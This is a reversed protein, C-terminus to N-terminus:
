HHIYGDGGFTERHQKTILGERRGRVTEVGSVGQSGPLWQGAKKDSYILNLKRFNYLFLAM